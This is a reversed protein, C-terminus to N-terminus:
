VGLPRDQPTPELCRLIVREVAADLGTVHSSPKSPPTDRRSDQYARKGTFLEYLLLGLAFLDSRVSVEKGAIQEPAQYLPTGSRVDTPQDAAVALGFDLIRVQGRGDLMINAPKLDRHLVEREHAAALGLCLQRAIEIGREEPLRGVKKLLTALNEGDIYEMTLFPQGDHEAIDYVRCINPHSIQRAISVEGRFRALREPDRILHQPLFKLAVSQGLTLDDARYVEGHRRARSPAVIRYRNALLQGPALRAAHASRPQPRQSLPWTRHYPGTAAASVLVARM